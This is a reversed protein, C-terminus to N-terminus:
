SHYYRYVDAKQRIKQDLARLRHQRRSSELLLQNLRSKVSSLSESLEAVKNKNEEIIRQKEGRELMLEEEFKQMRKKLEQTEKDEPRFFKAYKREWEILHNIKEKLKDIQSYSLRMRIISDRMKQLYSYLDEKAKNRKIHVNSVLFLYKAFHAFSRSNQLKNARNKTKIEM